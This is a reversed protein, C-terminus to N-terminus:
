NLSKVNSASFFFPYGLSAIFLKQSKTIRKNKAPNIIIIFVNNLIKLENFM